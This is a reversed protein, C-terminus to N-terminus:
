SLPKAQARTRLDLWTDGLGLGFALATVLPWAFVALAVLMYTLARSRSMWALIGMGRLVYLFGFFVLLNLGANKGEAFAKLLFISAGVAVGWVLHDNFRFDRLKGLQPGIPVSSMRHFLAWGLALAALSELALLAPMVITSWKPISALQIESEETLRRLSPSKEVMEKWGPQASVQRLSAISLDNRRNFESAMANGVRTPGRPSVLVLGFALSTAVALASLARPFFPEAATVISVLRFSATLLLTWGRAMWNYPSEPPGVPSALLLAAIVVWVLALSLRGGSKWAVVACAAVAAALLLLTQEIPLIARMAPVFPVVAFAVLGIALRRWSGRVKAPAAPGPM